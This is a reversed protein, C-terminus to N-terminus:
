RVVTSCMIETSVALQEEVYVQGEFVWTSHRHKLLKVAMRLQDGPVVQKKFRTKNIGTLYYAMNGDPKTDMTEYALIGSAQAIMEVMLVGPMIPQHPFHGQFQPENVTINKIATLSKGPIIEIVKDVFLFPYRHALIAKVGEIHMENM